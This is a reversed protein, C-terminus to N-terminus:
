SKTLAAEEAQIVLLWCDAFHLYFVESPMVAALDIANQVRENWICSVNKLV